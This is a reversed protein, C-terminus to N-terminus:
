IAELLENKLKNIEKSQNYILKRLEESKQKNQKYLQELDQIKIKKKYLQKLRLEFNM